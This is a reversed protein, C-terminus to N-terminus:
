FDAEDEKEGLNIKLIIEASSLFMLVGLIQLDQDIGINRFNLQEPLYDLKMKHNHKSSYIIEGGVSEVFKIVGVYQTNLKNKEITSTEKAIKKSRKNLWNQLLVQQEKTVPIKDM